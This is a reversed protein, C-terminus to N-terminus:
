RGPLRHRQEHLPRGGLRRRHNRAAAAGRECCVGNTWGCAAPPSQGLSTMVPVPSNTSRSFSCRMDPLADVFADLELEGEGLARQDTNMGRLPGDKVHVANLRGDLRDLAPLPDVRAVAAWNVDFEIQVDDELLAVLRDFASTGDVDHSLEHDHHHFGIEIGYGGARTAAANLMEATGAIAAVSSWHTQDFHPHYVTRTGLGAAAALTADVVDTDLFGHATPVSLANAAIGPAILAATSHIAFPEISRFGAGAVSELARDWGREEISLRVSWLQISSQM